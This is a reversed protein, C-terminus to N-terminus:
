FVRDRSKERPSLSFSLSLSLYNQKKKTYKYRRTTRSKIVKTKDIRIEASIVEDWSRENM